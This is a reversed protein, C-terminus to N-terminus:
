RGRRVCWFSVCPYQPALPTVIQIAGSPLAEQCEQAVNPECQHFVQPAGM